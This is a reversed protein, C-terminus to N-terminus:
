PYAERGQGSRYEVRDILDPSDALGGRWRWEEQVSVARRALEPLGATGRGDRLVVQAEEPAQGRLFDGPQMAPADEGDGLVGMSESGPPHLPSRRPLAQVVVM